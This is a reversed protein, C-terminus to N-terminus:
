WCAPSYHSVRDRLVTMAKRPTTGTACSGHPGPTVLGSDGNAGPGCFHSYYVRTIRNSTAFLRLLFSAGCAQTFENSHGVDHGDDDEVGVETIWVHARSWSGSLSALTSRTVCTDNSDCRAKHQTYQFSDYWPHIAFYEPRFGRPLAFRTAESDIVHKYRDLFSGDACGDPAAGKCTTEFAEVSGWGVIDGAAVHCGDTPDCHKRLALYYEAATTAGLTKPATLGNGPPNDNNPENWATFDHVEPWTAQFAVMAKEYADVSPVADNTTKFSVLLECRENAGTATDYIAQFAARNGNGPAGPSQDAVDWAPYAHCIRRHAAGRTSTWLDDFQPNAFVSAFGLTYGVMIAGASLDQEDTGTADGSGAGCAACAAALLATIRWHRM